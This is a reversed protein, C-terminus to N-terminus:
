SHKLYTMKQSYLYGDSELMYRDSHSINRVAFHIFDFNANEVPIRTNNLM